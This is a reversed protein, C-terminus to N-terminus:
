RQFFNSLFFWLNAPREALRRMFYPYWHTGYPIYVRVPYGQEALQRQLDRRIGFLMQFEIGTRPLGAKEAATIAHRIRKEDHTAIAALPPFRGDPSGDSVGSAAAAAILLDSLRDYNGDVDRKRPYALHAPEQYAGKVLRVPIGQEVLSRVDEESRYLYAQIVAGTNQYGADWARRILNLTVQTLSSDEMDVRVFNRKERAKELILLLNRYTQDVDIALGLQTLKISVNSKLGFRDIRELIDLIERVAQSAESLSTTHEGLNDLTAHIGQQNLLRVAQVAEDPTEGAIFRSAVRWAFKWRTIWRQAWQAKSLSIFAGRLM